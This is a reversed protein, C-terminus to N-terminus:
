PAKRYAGAPPASVRPTGTIDNAQLLAGVGAVPSGKGVALSTPLLHLDYLGHVPDFQVVQGAPGTNVAVNGNADSSKFLDIITANGAGGWYMVGHNSTQPGVAVNHDPPPMSPTHGNFVWIQSACNNTVRTNSSNPGQHSSAGVTLSLTCGSHGIPSGDDLVTNNAILSNHISALAMGWCASTVVVNNTVTM